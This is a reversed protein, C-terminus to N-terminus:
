GNVVQALADCLRGLNSDTIGAVNIRGSGVIYISFEERLRDVQERGLGSFSFMGNQETIFQNGAPNLEIGRRDLEARFKARMGNIRARMEDLEALWAARLEADTLVMQVVTDGHAPPNSYNRRICLRIQSLAAQAHEAQRAIATLAGVRENYLGFNKSFSSCVLAEDNHALVTRLGAADEDLGAGLGQYAFDILPVAKVAALAEAIRQWQEPTPDVGTPNHCCGHLMVVDGEPVEALSALMADIDLANRAADYYAYTKTPVGAAKYIAPHNAWTPTSLWITAGPRHQKLFDGVIRLAGTGGPSAVTVARGSAILPSDSGLLLARAADTYASDGAIPKYSKSAQTDWLQKEAAKVAKMVPTKGDADKYVGVGLNIKDVNTDARFAASLGLIADPPATAITEFM